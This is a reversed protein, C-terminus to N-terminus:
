KKKPPIFNNQKISRLHYLVFIAIGVIENRHEKIRKKKKKLLKITMFIIVRNEAVLIQQNKKETKRKYIM